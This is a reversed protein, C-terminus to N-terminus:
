ESHTTFKFTHTNGDDSKFFSTRNEPMVMKLTRDKRKRKIDMVLEDGSEFGRLARMFEAPSNVETDGVQLIVDGSILQLDNDAKAKLVLVGRETKFYEGLESDIEALQLGQAMPLGFWVNADHLAFNGLESMEHFEFEYQRDVPAMVGKDLFVARHDIEIRMKEIKEAIEETNIEPVVIREISIVQGPEAPAGAMAAIHPASPFRTVTHWSIPERVEPVVTLDITKDARELTITLPADPKIDRMAVRLADSANDSEEIAALVQGGVAVIVDGQKIGARESPGDPSVGLVKVGVEDADGLIVGIVPRNITSFTFESSYRDARARAVERDVRAIERSTERLQRRARNLEDHMKEMQAQEIAREKAREGENAEALERKQEAVLQLQERAKEMSREAALRESKVAELAKEYEAELTAQLEKEEAKHALEEDTEASASTALALTVTFVLVVLLSYCNPKCTKMLEHRM